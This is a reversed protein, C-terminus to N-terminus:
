RRGRMAAFLEAARKSSKSGATHYWPSAPGTNYADTNVGQQELWLKAENGLATLLEHRVCTALPPLKAIDLHVTVRRDDVKGGRVFRAAVPDPPGSMGVISNRQKAHRALVRTIDAASITANGALPSVVSRKALMAPTRAAGYAIAQDYATDGDRNTALKAGAALLVKVAEPSDSRAAYFLATSGWKDVAEVKAGAAILARMAKAAGHNAAHHLPTVSNRDCVNPNAGADLFAIVGLEVQVNNKRQTAPSRGGRTPHAFTRALAALLPVGKPTPHSNAGNTLTDPSMGNAFLWAVVPLAPQMAWNGLAATMLLMERDNRALAPFSAALTRLLPKCKAATKRAKAAARISRMLTDMDAM